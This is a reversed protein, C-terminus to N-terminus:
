NSIYRILSEKSIVDNKQSKTLKRNLGQTFIQPYCNIKKREPKNPTGLNTLSKLNANTHIELYNLGFKNLKTLNGLMISPAPSFSFFVGEEARLSNMKGGSSHSFLVACCLMEFFFLGKLIHFPNRLHPFDSQVSHPSRGIRQFSFFADM